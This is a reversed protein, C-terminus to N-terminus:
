KQAPCGRVKCNKLNEKIWNDLKWKYSTSIDQYSKEKTITITSNFHTFAPNCNHKLLNLSDGTLFVWNEATIKAESCNLNIWRFKGFTVNYDDMIKSEDGIKYEPVSPLITIMQMRVQAEYPPDIWLTPIDRYVYVNFPNHVQSPGRQYVGDFYDLVGTVRQNTNDTYLASIEEYTPCGTLNAKIMSLCSKSLAIGYQPQVDAYAFVSLGILIISGIVWVLM